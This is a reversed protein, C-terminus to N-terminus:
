QLPPVIKVEPLPLIMRGGNNIYSANRKQIEDFFSWAFILLYDIAENINTTFEIYKSNIASKLMLDLQPEFFDIKSKKLNFIKTENNDVGITKFKKKANTVALPLGVFGLGIVSIKM